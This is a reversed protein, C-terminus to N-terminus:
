HVKSHASLNYLVLSMMAQQAIHIQLSNEGEGRRLAELIQPATPNVDAMCVSKGGLLSPHAPSPKPSKYTFYAPL